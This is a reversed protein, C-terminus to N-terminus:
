VQNAETVRGGESDHAGFGALLVNLPVLPLLTLLRPVPQHLGHKPFWEVALETVLAAVAWLFIPRTFRSPFAQINNM